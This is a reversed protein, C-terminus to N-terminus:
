DTLLRAVVDAARQAGAADVNLHTVCRLTHPGISSVLVNQESMRAVLGAAPELTAFMVINTPVAPKRLTAGRSADVAGAIVRANAHDDALREVNHELAYLGAAAIVGAQRM